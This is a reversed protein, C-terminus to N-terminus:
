SYKVDKRPEMEFATSEQDAINPKLVEERFKIYHPDDQCIALKDMSEVELYVFWPFRDNPNVRKGTKVALVEPVRLLQVRTRFMMNELAEETVEPKLQYLSLYAIM